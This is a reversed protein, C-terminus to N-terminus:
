VDVEQSGELPAGSVDTEQSVTPTLLLLESADLDLVECLGEFHQQDIVYMFTFVAAIVADIENPDIAVDSEPSESHSNAHTFRTLHLRLADPDGEFGKAELSASMSRMAGTFDGVSAPSKFAVFTELMRRLVNPYLLLADLRKEMSSDERLAVHARAATLFAHHYASRIKKRAVENPPWAIFKPSRRPTGRVDRYPAILEYSNSRFGNKNGPGRKGPLGDIQIDWQRFLEFNHTLLFIQEIHAKSVAESWIYTSIGMSSGSDLSSVPDDIVVIPKGGRADARKVAELFHILAIATREGTSLGRAPEGHRTVRYHKGDALLEFSLENRGLIRTLETAMVEASPLPDGEVNELAVVETRQASIKTELGTMAALAVAASVVLGDVESEASKLLHLEVKKAAEQVLAAHHDIRGNHDAISEVLANGDVSPAGSVAYEVKAVVNERKQVLAGRLGDLWTSLVSAENLADSHARKFATQLDDFMGSSLSDEGLLAGLTRQEGEVEEILGDLKRQLVTVEDSFHREIAAKRAGTLESGCFVCNDLDVHIERGAEVWSAAHPHARLTDLVESVPSTALATEAETRLDARVRLSFSRPVIKQREDSNVTALAAERDADPLLVWETRDGTFRTKVIRSSYNSNSAYPGGARSLAAVVGRALSTYSADLARDAARTSAAADPLVGEADKILTRLEAVRKEEEVSQDGLTLVAAVEADGEFNHSREVYADSFVFLREFEADHQKSSARESSGDPSCMRISASAFGGRELTLGDFARSLSTKGAGNTGYMLNLREFDPTIADWRFDEFIGANSLSEIRRLM